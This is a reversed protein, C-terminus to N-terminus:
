KDFKSRKYRRVGDNDQLKNWYSTTWVKINTYGNSYLDSKFQNMTDYESTIIVSRKTEPNFVCATYSKM